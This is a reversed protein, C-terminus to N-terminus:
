PQAEQRAARVQEAVDPWAPADGATRRLYAVLATLQPDTLISGFAPMRRGPGAGNPAVGDLVIRILNRPDPELVAVALPLQLASGSSPGRGVDHCRACAGAYVDAGSRLLATEAAGNGAVDSAAPLWGREARAMSAKARDARPPTPEGLVSAIYVAIARVDAPAAGGLSEVVGQMPGAAVAHDPALGSRLYAELQEATWPLPSPSRANLAPAHWGDVDGGDLYRLRDEGGLEDRPTHCSSCHGLSRVLYAGRNWEASMRPEPRLPTRDLYLLSWAALLPRLDFPFRLDNPPTTARVPPRTMVFAYLAHLEADTVRTYHTYPFVPYLRAGHRAVGQRMARRFAAESWRGIGTEPDPTINTGHVTGFPTELAVGGAYPLGNRTTHCGACNGVAALQAGRRVDAENFSEPAPPDIAAIPPRWTALLAVVAVLLALAALFPLLRSQAIATEPTLGASARGGRGAGGGRL